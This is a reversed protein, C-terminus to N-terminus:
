RMVRAKAFPALGFRTVAIRKTPITAYATAAPVVLEIETGRNARSAISIAGGIRQARERMGRLGFHRERGALAIAPDIGVGDDSVRLSLRRREFIVEVEIRSARAHRLSNRIAEIGIEEIERRSFSHLERPMGEITVRVDPASLPAEQTARLFIKSLECPATDMTRLDRVRDRGEELMADAYVLAQEILRHAHEPESEVRDAIVQLRLILAQFGQLLTDHLERAIRERENRRASDTIVRLRGELVRLRLYCALCIIAAIMLGCVIERPRGHVASAIALERAARTHIPGGDQSASMRRSGSRAPALDAHHANDTTEALPREESAGAASDLLPSARELPRILEVM